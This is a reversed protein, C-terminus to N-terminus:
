LSGNESSSPQRPNIARYVAAFDNDGLGLGKAQKFAENAAAAVPMPQNLEDGLALALRLDKQQHKLPFAAPFADSLISGGKLKFLGNAMAGLDVLKLKAGNGTEGLFFSKKGMADFAPVVEKYLAPAELFRGGKGVIADGIKQSTGADVTSMDVYSKGEKISEIVGKEGLATQLAVAPDALMAITIGCREVVEAPSAGVSAGEKALAECMVEYCFFDSVLPTQM